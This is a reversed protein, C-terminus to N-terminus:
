KMRLMLWPYEVFLENSSRQEYFFLTDELAEGYALRITGEESHQEYYGTLAGDEMFTGKDTFEFTWGKEECCWVGVLGDGGTDGVRTYTSQIYVYMQDEQRVYRLKKTEGSNDTLYIFKEDSTYHYEKGEFRATGNERFIAAVNETDHVYAWRGSLASEYVNWAVPKRRGFFVALAVVLVVMCGIVVYITTKRNRVKEKVM